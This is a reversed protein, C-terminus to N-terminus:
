RTFLYIGGLLAIAGVVLAVTETTGGGQGISLSSDGVSTSSVNSSTSNYSDSIQTNTTSQKTVDLGFFGGKAQGTGKTAAGKGAASVTIVPVTDDSTDLNNAM